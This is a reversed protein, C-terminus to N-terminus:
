NYRRSRSYFIETENSPVYTVELKYYNPMPSGNSIEIYAFISGDSKIIRGKGYPYAVSYGDTKTYNISYKSSKSDKIVQGYEDVIKIEFGAQDLPIGLDWFGMTITSGNGYTKEFVTQSSAYSFVSLLLCVFLSKRLM